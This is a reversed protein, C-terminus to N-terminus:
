KRRNSRFRHPKYVPVPLNVKTEVPLFAISFVSTSYSAALSTPVWADSVDLKSKWSFLLEEQGNSSKRKGIVQPHVVVSPGRLCLEEAEGEATRKRSGGQEELTAHQQQQPMQQQQVQQMQQRFKAAGSFHEMKVLNHKIAETSQTDMFDEFQVVRRLRIKQSKKKKSGGKTPTGDRSRVDRVGGRSGTASDSRSSHSSGESDADFGGLSGKFHQNVHRQLAFQTNFRRSCRGVVCKFANAGAHSVYHRELWNFSSAPRDFVKCGLWRCVFQPASDEELAENGLSSSPLSPKANQQPDVHKNRLHDLLSSNDSCVFDCKEWRCVVRNRQVAPFSITTGGSNLASNHANALPTPVDGVPLSSTSSSESCRRSSTQRSLASRSSSLESLSQL